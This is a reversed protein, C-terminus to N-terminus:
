PDVQCACTATSTAVLRMWYLFRRPHPQYGVCTAPVYGLEVVAAEIRQRTEVRVAIIRSNNLVESVITQSGRTLRADDPRTLSRGTRAAM